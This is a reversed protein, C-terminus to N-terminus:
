LIFLAAALRMKQFFSFHGRGFTSAIPATASVGVKAAAGVDAAARMSLISRGHVMASLPLISPGFIEVLIREPLQKFQGITTIRWSRLIKATRRGIGPLMEIPVTSTTSYSM